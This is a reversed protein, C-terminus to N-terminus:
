AGPMTLRVPVLCVARPMRRVDVSRKLLEAAGVARRERYVLILADTMPCFALLAGVSLGPMLHGNSVAGIVRFPVSLAFALGFSQSASRKAHDQEPADSAQIPVRKASFPSTLSSVIAILGATFM